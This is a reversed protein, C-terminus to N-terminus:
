YVCYKPGESYQDPKIMIYHICAGYDRFDDNHSFTCKKVVTGEMVNSLVVAQGSPNTCNLIAINSTNYM